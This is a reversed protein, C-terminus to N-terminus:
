LERKKAKKKGKETKRKENKRIMSESELV